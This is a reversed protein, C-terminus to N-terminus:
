QRKWSVFTVKIDPITVQSTVGGCMGVVFAKDLKFPPVCTNPSQPHLSAATRLWVECPQEPEQTKMQLILDHM